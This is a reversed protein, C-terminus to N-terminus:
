TFRFSLSVMESGVRGMERQGVTERGTRGKERGTRLLERERERGTRGIWRGMRRMERGKKGM